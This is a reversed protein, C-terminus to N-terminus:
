NEDEINVTGKDLESTEVYLSKEMEIFRPQKYYWSINAQTCEMIKAIDSQSMGKVKM